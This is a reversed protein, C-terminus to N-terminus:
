VMNALLAEAQAVPFEISIIAGRGHTNNTARITARHSDAIGRCISLGLGSGQKKTTVFPDFIRGLLRPPIGSGTDAIDVTVADGPAHGRSGITITVEGDAPTADIANLLINLFLQELQAPDGFIARVTDPYRTQIAISRQELQPRLLSLAADLPERVDVHLLHQSPRSALGRLRAVLGDIRSIERIVIQSFDNRFDEDTFREPLLEAFTKIAVLPNKIEHAVGSALAGISALREIRHQEAELQKLRTLDNLVAVAGVISGARDRLASTSIIVSIEYRLRDEIVTEFQSIAQGSTATTTLSESVALPLNAVPAGKADIVDLKTLRAAAANFLTVTGGRDVAIVGSDITALTNEIYENALSVQNYLLANAIAIAAQSVLTSLLDLDDQLFPDGSRKRGVVLIGYLSTERFLPFAIQGDLRALVEAALTLLPSPSSSRVDDIDFPRRHLALSRPLPSDLELESLSVTDTPVDRTTATLRLTDGSRLYLLALEASLTNVIVNTLYSLLVDLDLITSLQGSAERVTDRYDYASRYFYRNLHTNFFARLPQFLVAVLLALLVATQLPLTGAHHHALLSFGSSALVFLGSIAVITCAYVVSKHIFVRINMLRHRVIAHASFSVFFITFYPGLLSYQSTRWLIPVVLNTTAAGAGSLLLGLLLYRLQLRRIGTAARLHVYLARLAWSFSLVFYLGFVPHLPGYLLNPRPVAREAGVVLWPSFSLLALLVALGAVVRLTASGTRERQFAHFLMLLCLPVLGASAFALRGLAITAAPSTASLAFTISMIWGVLPVVCLAFRQNLEARHDRFVVFAALAIHTACLILVGLLRLDLSPLIQLATLM